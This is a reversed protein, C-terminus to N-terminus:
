QSYELPRVNSACELARNWNECAMFQEIAKEYYGVNELMDGASEFKRINILRQAVVEVVEQVRDKAFGM